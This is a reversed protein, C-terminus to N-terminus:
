VCVVEKKKLIIQMNTSQEKLYRNRLQRLVEQKNCGAHCTFSGNNLNMYFVTTSEGVHAPCRSTIYNQKYNYVVDELVSVYKLAPAQETNATNTCASASASTTPYLDNYTTETPVIKRLLKYSYKTDSLHVIEAEVGTKPHEFGPFRMVRAPNHIAKDAGILCAIDRQLFSFENTNIPSELIWYFHHSKNGTNVIISPYPVGHVVLRELQEDLTSGDDFDCFIARCETIDTDSRGGNPVFGINVTGEKSWHKLTLYTGKNLKMAKRRNNNRDKKDWACFQVYDQETYGFKGLFDKGIGM